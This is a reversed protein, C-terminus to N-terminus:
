RHVEPISGTVSPFNPCLSDTASGVAQLAARSASDQDVPLNKDCLNEASLTKQSDTAIEREPSSATPVSSAASSAGTSRVSGVSGPHPVYPVGKLWLRLAHWYIGAAVKMTLLPYQLLVRLMNWRTLPQRRAVLTADFPKGDAAQHEIHVLLKDSPATVRWFYEMAMDFFPSVHFEKDHRASWRPELEGRAEPRLDLVYYHREDWPTNTVEAVLTELQEGAADFCYYFSVPNMRFGAYRFSTLLRIPGTPTRGLRATVLQRVSQDLPEHAAGLYDARRFWALAPWRMSWLGRRGFLRTLEALDVYVLFLRYHLSHFVDTPRGSSQEVGPARWRRHRVSGEYLCSHIVSSSM